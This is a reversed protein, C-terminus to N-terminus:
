LFEVDRTGQAGSDLGQAGAASSVTSPSGGSKHLKQGAPDWTYEVSSFIKANAGMWDSGRGGAKRALAELYAEHSGDFQQAVKPLFFARGGGAARPLSLAMGMSGDMKFNARITESTIREVSRWNKRSELFDAHYRQSPFNAVTYPREWRDHADSPCRRGAQLIKHATAPPTKTTNEEEVAGECCTPEDHGNQQASEDGLLGTGMFVGRTTNHFPSWAPLRNATEINKELVPSRAFLSQWIHTKLTGLAMLVDFELIKEPRVRPGFVLSAYSVLTSDEENPNNKLGGLTTYKDLRDGAQSSLSDYYDVVKGRYHLDQVIEHFLEIADPGCLRRSGFLCPIVITHSCFEHEDDERGVRQCSVAGLSGM